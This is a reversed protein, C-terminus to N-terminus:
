PLIHKIKWGGGKKSGIREILGKGKLKKINNTITSRASRSKKMLEDITVTPDDNISSLIRIQTENLKSVWRNIWVNFEVPRYLKAVFMGGYSFELDSLDPCHVM